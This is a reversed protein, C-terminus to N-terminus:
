NRDSLYYFILFVYTIVWNNTEMSIKCALLVVCLHACMRTCACVCLTLSFGVLFLFHGGNNFKRIQCNPLAHSLRGGEEQSPLLQDRGSFCCVTFEVWDNKFSGCSWFLFLVVLRCTCMAIIGKYYFNLCLFKFLM